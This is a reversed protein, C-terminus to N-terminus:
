CVVVNLLMLWSLEGKSLSHQLSKLCKLVFFGVRILISEVAM